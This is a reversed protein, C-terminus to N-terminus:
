KKKNRAQFAKDFLGFTAGVQGSFGKM